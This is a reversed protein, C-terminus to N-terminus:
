VAEDDRDHERGDAREESEDVILVRLIFTESSREHGGRLHLIYM